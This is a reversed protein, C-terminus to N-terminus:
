LLHPLFCQNSQSTQRSIFIKYLDYNLVLSVLHIVTIRWKYSCCLCECPYDEKAGEHFTNCCANFTFSTDPRHRFCALPINNCIMHFFLVQRMKYIMPWLELKTPCSFKLHLPPPRPDLCFSEYPAGLSFFDM